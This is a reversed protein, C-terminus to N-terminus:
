MVSDSKFPSSDLMTSIPIDVEIPVDTITLDKPGRSISYRAPFVRGKRGGGEDKNKENAAGTKAWKESGETESDRRDSKNSGRERGLNPVQDRGLTDNACNAAPEQINRGSQM